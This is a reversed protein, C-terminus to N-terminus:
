EPAERKLDSGVDENRAGFGFMEDFDSQVSEREVFEVGAAGVLVVAGAQEDGVDAGTGAADGDSECFFKGKSLNISSIKRRGRKRDGFAVGCLEGDGIANVKEFGIKKRRYPRLMNRGMEAIDRTRSNKVRWDNIGVRDPGSVLRRGRARG